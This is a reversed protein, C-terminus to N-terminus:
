KLFVSTKLKGSKTAIKYRTLFHSSLNKRCGLVCNDGVGFSRELFAFLTKRRESTILQNVGDSKDDFIHNAVFGSAVSSDFLDWNDCREMSFFESGDGNPVIDFSKGSIRIAM